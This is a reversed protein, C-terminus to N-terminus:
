EIVGRKQLNDDMRERMLAKERWRKQKSRCKNCHRYRIDPSPGGCKPCLRAGAPELKRKNFVHGRRVRQRKRHRCEDIRPIDDTM